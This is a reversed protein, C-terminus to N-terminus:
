ALPIGRTAFEAVVVAKQAPTMAKFKDRCKNCLPNSSGGAQIMAATPNQACQPLWQCRPYKVGTAAATPPAPQTKKPPGPLPLPAAAAAASAAAAATAAAHAAASAAKKAARKSVTPVAGAAAMGSTMPAPRGPVQANTGSLTAARLRTRKGLGPPSPTGKKQSRPVAIPLAAGIIISTGASLLNAPVLTPSTTSSSTDPIAAVFDRNAKVEVYEKHWKWAWAQLGKEYVVLSQGLPESNRPYTSHVLQLLGLTVFMKMLDVTHPRDSVMIQPHPPLLLSVVNPPVWHDPRSSLFQEYSKMYLRIFFHFWNVASKVGNSPDIYGYRWAAHARMSAEVSAIWALFRRRGLIELQHLLLEGLPETIPIRPGPPEDPPLPIARSAAVGGSSGGGTGGAVGGTSGAASAGGGASAAASAGASAEGSAPAAAQVADAPIIYEATPPRLTAAAITVQQELPLGSWAFTTAAVTSILGAMARRTQDLAHTSTGTGLVCTMMPVLLSPIHSSTDAALGSISSGGPLRDVNARLTLFQTSEGRVSRMLRSVDMATWNQPHAAWETLSLAFDAACPPPLGSTTPSMPTPSASARASLAAM